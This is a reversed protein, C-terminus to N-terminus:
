DAGKEILLEVIFPFNNSAALMMASYGGKDVMDVEAGKDLLKEVADYHGNLAALMLPTWLCANQMNVLQKGVLFEDMVALDGQEAADMLTPLKQPQQESDCATLLIFLAPILRHFM